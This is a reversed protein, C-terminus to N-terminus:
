QWKNQKYDLKLQSRRYTDAMRYSTIYLWCDPKEQLIVLYNVKPHFLYVREKGTENKSSKWVWIGECCRDITIKLCPENTLIEKGWLLRTAREPIVPDGRYGAIIHYFGEDKGKIQPNSRFKVVKNRFYFRCGKLKTLYMKYLKEIVEEDDVSGDLKLPESLWECGNHM